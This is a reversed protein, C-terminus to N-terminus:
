RRTLTLLHNKSTCQVNATAGAGCNYYSGIDSKLECYDISGDFPATITSVVSTAVRVDARGEFAIYRHTGMDEIVSPGDGRLEIGIDAGAVGVQFWNYYQLFSGGSVTAWFVSNAPTNGWTAPSITAAYTRTRVDDPLSPCAPDVTLTLAYDGAISVPAADV